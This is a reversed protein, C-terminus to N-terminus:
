TLKKRLKSSVADIAMVLILITLVVTCVNQYQFLRMYTQLLFGIGGAGVIGLVVAARINLEFRLLFYSLFYPLVQPLIGWRIVNLRDAGVSEMAEVPSQDVTEIAHYMLQGLMGVSHVALALTGPFPGLGVASVFFLALILADIARDANLFLRVFQRIFRNRMVNSAALFGLPISLFMALTTGVLALQITVLVEQFVKPLIDLNPPFMRELFDAMFPAGEVLRVLNFEVANFSLVFFAFFAAGIAWYWGRWYFVKQLKQKSAM